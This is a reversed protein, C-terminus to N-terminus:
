YSMRKWVTEDGNKIFELYVDEGNGEDVAMFKYYKYEGDGWNAEKAIKLFIECEQNTGGLDCKEEAVLVINGVDKDYENFYEKADSTLSVAYGTIGSVSLMILIVISFTIITSIIERMKFLAYDILKFLKEDM